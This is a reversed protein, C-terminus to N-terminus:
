LRLFLGLFIRSLGQTFKFGCRWCGCDPCSLFGSECCRRVDRRGVAEPASGRTSPHYASTQNCGVGRHQRQPRTHSQIMGTIAPFVEHSVRSAFNAAAPDVDPRWTRALGHTKAPTCYFQRHQAVSGSPCLSGGPTLRRNAPLLLCYVTPLLCYATPLLCYATPLLSFSFPVVFNMSTTGRKRGEAKQKRGVAEREQRRNRGATIGYDRLNMEVTLSNM